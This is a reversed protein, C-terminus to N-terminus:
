RQIVHVFMGVLMLLAVALAIYPATSFLKLLLDVGTTRKRGGVHQDLVSYLGTFSAKDENFRNPANPTESM